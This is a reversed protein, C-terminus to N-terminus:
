DVRADGSMAAGCFVCTEERADISSHCAPCVASGAKLRTHRVVDEAGGNPPWTAHWTEHSPRANDQLLARDARLYEVEAILEHLAGCQECCTHPTTALAKIVTLREATM